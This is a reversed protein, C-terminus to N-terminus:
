RGSQLVHITQTGAAVIAYLSEGPELQVELPGDSPTWEFGNGTTTGSGGVWVSTTSTLNKLVFRRLPWDGIDSSAPVTALAVASTGVDVRTAIVAM